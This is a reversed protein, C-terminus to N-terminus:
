KKKKLKNILFTKILNLLDQRTYKKTNDVLNYKLCLQVLEQNNFKDFDVGNLKM